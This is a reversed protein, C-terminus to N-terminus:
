TPEEKDGSRYRVTSFRLLDKSTYTRYAQDTRKMYEERTIPNDLQKLTVQRLFLSFARSLGMMRIAEIRNRRATDLLFMSLGMGKGEELDPWMYTVSPYIAASFPADGWPMDAIRFVFYLILNLECLAMDIRGNNCAFVERETPRDISLILRPGNEDFSFRAGNELPYNPYLGGVVLLEYDDM